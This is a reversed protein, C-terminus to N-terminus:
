DHQAGKEAQALLFARAMAPMRHLRAALQAIERDMLEVPVIKAREIIGDTIALINVDLTTCFHVLQDVTLDEQGSYLRFLTDMPIGTQDHIDQPTLGRLDMLHWLRTVFMSSLTDPPPAGPSAADATHLM